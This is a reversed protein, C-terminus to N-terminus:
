QNKELHEILIRRILASTPERYQAAEAELRQWTADDIRIKRIPTSAM